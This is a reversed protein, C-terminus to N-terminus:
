AIRGLNENGDTMLVLRKLHHPAFNELANEIAGEINTASQAIAGTGPKEGISVTRVQNLTDFAAANAGFPIYRGHDPKGSDNTQQIWEIGAQIDAPLISQSIDLLYMVSVLAGSRYIVPQTLAVALLAVIASRVFGSLRLHKASLDVRTKRQTWWIYPILLLLFFPWYNSM